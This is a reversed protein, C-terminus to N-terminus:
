KKKRRRYGSYSFIGILGVIGFLVVFIFLVWQNKVTILLPDLIKALEYAAKSFLLWMLITEAKIKVKKGIIETRAIISGITYLLIIVDAIAIIIKILLPYAGGGFM